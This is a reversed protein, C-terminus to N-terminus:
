PTTVLFVQSMGSTLLDNVVSAARRLDKGRILVPADDPLNFGAQLGWVLGFTRDVDEPDCCELVVDIVGFGRALVLQDAQERTAYLGLRTRAAPDAPVARPDSANPLGENDLLPAVVPTEALLLAQEPDGGGCAALLLSAALATSIWGTKKM